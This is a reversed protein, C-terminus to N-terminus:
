EGFDYPLDDQYSINSEFIVKLNEPVDAKKLGCSRMKFTKLKPLSLLATVDKLSKCDQIIVSQLNIAAELGNLNELETCDKIVVHTLNILNGISELTKTASKINVGRIQPIKQTFEFNNANLNIIRLGDMGALGDLNILISSAPIDLKKIKNIGKLGNLNELNECKQHGYGRYNIMCDELNECGSFGDVNRLNVINIEASNLAKLNKLGDINELSNSDIRISELASCGVFGDVNKLSNLNTINVARLKKLGTLGDVNEIPGGTISIEELSNCGNLGDLNELSEAQDINITKLAKLGKLGDVNKLSEAESINITKLAKLGKLGDVNKLSPASININILANCGQLGDLNTLKAKNSSYLQMTLEINELEKCGSLGEVDILNNCGNISLNQLKTCNEIGVLTKLSIEDGSLSLNKLMSLNSLGEMDQDGNISYGYISLHALKKFGSFEKLTLDNGGDDADRSKTLSLKELNSFNSINGFVNINLESVEKRIEQAFDNPANNILGRMAYDLYPQAPGTGTFSPNPVLRGEKIEEGHWDTSKFIKYEVGQLLEQYLSQDELSFVLEIGQNIVGIDRANLLKKIKSLMKKDVSPKSVGTEKNAFVSVDKGLAKLLRIQYKEVKERSEMVKPRPLPQVNPCGDMNLKALSPLESLANVDQLNNSDFLVLEELNKLNEIGTLIKISSCESLNLNKLKTLSKINSIDEFGNSTLNLELYTTNIFADIGLLNQLNASSITLAKVSPWEKLGEFSTMKMERLSLTKVDLINLSQLLSIDSVSCSLNDIEIKELGETKRISNCGVIDFWDIKSAGKLATIDKLSSCGSLDVEVGSGFRINLVYVDSNPVGDLSSLKSCDTVKLSELLNLKELGSLSEISSCESLDLNKLKTLSKTNSIDELGKSTLNLETINPAEELGKLNLLKDCEIHARGLNKLDKLDSLSNIVESDIDLLELSALSEIGSLSILNDCRRIVIEKLSKMGKLASIDSINKSAINISELQRMNQVGDLNKLEDWGWLSLETGNYKLNELSELSYLSDFKVEELNVLGKMADVNRLSGCGSIDLTKLKTMSQLGELDELATFYSLDLSTMNLTKNLLSRLSKLNNQLGSDGHYEPLNIDFHRLKHLSSLGDIEKLLSDSDKLVLSELNIFGELTSSNSLEIDLSVVSSKLNNAIECDDPAYSIVGLLAYNLYPQAPGTGSFLANPILHGGANSSYKVGDLFYNAVDANNLSRYLELGQEILDPERSIFLKKLKDLLKKDVTAPIATKPKLTRNSPKKRPAPMIELFREENIILIQNLKQAKQILKHDANKGNIILNVKDDINNVVLGGLKEVRQIVEETDTNELNGNFIMKVRSFTKGRPIPGDLYNLNFYNFLNPGVNFSSGYGGWNIVGTKINELEMPYNDRCMEISNNECFNFITILDETSEIAKLLIKM